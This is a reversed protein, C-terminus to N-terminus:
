RGARAPHRRAAAAARQRHTDARLVYPFRVTRRRMVAAPSRHNTAGHPARIKVNHWAPPAAEILERLLSVALEAAEVTPVAVTTLAPRAERALQIDTIGIVSLDLPVRRGLDAAAHLAGLAPLDNSAFLATLDPHAELLDRAAEYGSQTTDRAHRVPSDQVAVGAAAADRGALMAALDIPNANCFVQREVAVKLVDRTATEWSSTRRRKGQHATAQM